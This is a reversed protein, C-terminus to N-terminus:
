DENSVDLYKAARDAMEKYGDIDGQHYVLTLADKLYAKDEASTLGLRAVTLLYREHIVEKSM